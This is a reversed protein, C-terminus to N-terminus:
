YSISLPEELTFVMESNTSAGPLLPLVDCQVPYSKGGVTVSVLTIQDVYDLTTSTVNPDPNSYAHVYVRAVRVKVPSLAPIATSFGVRVPVIVTRKGYDVRIQTGKPVVMVDPTTDRPRDFVSKPTNPATNAKDDKASPESSAPSKDASDPHPAQKDAVAPPESAAPAVDDDSFVRSAHASDQLKKKERQERAVDGLPKESSDAQANLFLSATLISSIALCCALKTM